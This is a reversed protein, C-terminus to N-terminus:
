LGLEKMAQEQRRNYDQTTRGLDRRMRNDAGSTASHGMSNLEQQIGIGTMMEGMPGGAGGRGARQRVQSRRQNARPNYAGSAERRYSSPMKLAGTSPDYIFERGDATLPVAPLYGPVLAALSPPYYGTTRGYQDIAVLINDMKHQDSEPGLPDKPYDLVKGTAPDYNYSTGDPQRPLRPLYAPVLEELATPYFGKEAHYTDVAQQLRIKGMTGGIASAQSHIARMNEAQLEGQIATTSLLELGCGVLMPALLSVTWAKM